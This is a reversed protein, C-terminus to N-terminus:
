NDELRNIKLKLKEILEFFSGTRLLEAASIAIRACACSIVENATEFDIAVIKHNM